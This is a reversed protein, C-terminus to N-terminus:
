LRQQLVVSPRVLLQELLVLVLVLLAVLLVARHAAQVVQV